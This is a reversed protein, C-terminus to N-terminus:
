QYMALSPIEKAMQSVRYLIQAAQGRTMVQDATVAIGNENMAAVAAMAWEPEESDVGDMTCTSVALDMANNLM